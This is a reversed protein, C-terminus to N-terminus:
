HPTRIREAPRADSGRDQGGVEGPEPLLDALDEGGPGPDEVHVHHVPM